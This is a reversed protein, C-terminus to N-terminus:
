AGSAAQDRAIARAIARAHRRVHRLGGSITGYFGNFYLRPANVHTKAGMVVPHGREDLVGLHGVLPDLGRRYGTAAIIADPQLWSPGIAM